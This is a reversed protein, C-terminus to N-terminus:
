LLHLRTLESTRDQGGIVRYGGPGVVKIEAVARHAVGEKPSSTQTSRNAARRSTV